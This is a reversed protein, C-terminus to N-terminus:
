REQEHVRDGRKWEAVPRVPAHPLHHDSDSHRDPAQGREDGSESAAEELQEHASGHKSDALCAVVGGACGEEGVVEGLFLATPHHGHPAYAAREPDCDTERAAAINGIM